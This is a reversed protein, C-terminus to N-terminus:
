GPGSIPGRLPGILREYEAEPVGYGGGAAEELGARDLVTISGRRAKIIGRGELIQMAVTVGSRRVALMIAIFEHTLPLEDDDLRDQTMLLWRALRKEITYVGNAVATLSTQVTFVQVYRLLLARLSPSEGALRELTGAEIRFGCGGIQMFTQYPTRDVGLLLSAGSMGDRGFLGVELRPGDAALAVVSALGQEPFYVQEIVENAASLVFRVPLPALELEPRLREFDTAALSKLLRNRINSQPPSIAISGCKTLRSCM